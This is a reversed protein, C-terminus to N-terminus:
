RAEPVLPESATAVTTRKPPTKGPVGGGIPSPAAIPAEAIASASISM